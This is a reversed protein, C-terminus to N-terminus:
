SSEIINFKDMAILGNVTIKGAWEKEAIPWVDEYQGWKWTPRWGGDESQEEIERDYLWYVYGPFRLLFSDQNPAIWFVRIEGLADPKPEFTKLTTALKEAILSSLPEPVLRYAREWCMFSYLSQITDINKLNELARKRASVLIENPVHEHYRHLYGLLEANPNAWSSEAPPKIEEIHWWPAHPADNVSLPTQPWYSDEVDYTSSLYNMANSIIEDKSKANVEICYQLGVSTAMTSSEVLRFDPEIAKGFGGDQNQFKELEGLVDDKPTDKFHHEFLRIDLDRANSYIFDEAKKFADKSLKM